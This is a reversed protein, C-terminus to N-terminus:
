VCVLKVMIQFTKLVPKRCTQFWFKDMLKVVLHNGKTVHHLGVM